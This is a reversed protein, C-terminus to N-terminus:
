RAPVVGVLEEAVLEQVLQEVYSLASEVTLAYRAALQQSLTNLDMQQRLGQWIEAGTENLTYYEGSQVHLLVLECNNLETWIVDSDSIVYTTNM